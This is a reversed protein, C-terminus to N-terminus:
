GLSAFYLLDFNLWALSSSTRSIFKTPRTVVNMVSRELGNEVVVSQPAVWFIAASM